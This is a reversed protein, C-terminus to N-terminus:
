KTNQPSVMMKVKRTITQTQPVYMPIMPRLDFNAITKFDLTVTIEVMSAGSADTSQTSTINKINSSIDPSAAKAIDAVTTGPPSKMQTQADSAWLAGARASTNVGMTFYMIRAWDVAIVSMLALFPLLIALEATAAGWRKRNTVRRM